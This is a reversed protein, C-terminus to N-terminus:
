TAPCVRDSVVAHVGSGGSVHSSYNNRIQLVVAPARLAALADAPRDAPAALRRSPGVNYRQPRVASSRDLIERRRQTFKLGGCAGSSIFRANWGSFYVVLILM